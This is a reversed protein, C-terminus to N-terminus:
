IYRKGNLTLLVQSALSLSGINGEDVIIKVSTDSTKEKWEKVAGRVEEVEHAGGTVFSCPIEAILYQIVHGYRFINVKV